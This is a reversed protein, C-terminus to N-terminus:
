SDTQWVRALDYQHASQSEANSSVMQQQNIYTGGVVFTLVLLYLVAAINKAKKVAQADSQNKM